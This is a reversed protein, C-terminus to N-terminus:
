LSLLNLESEFSMEGFYECQGNSQARHHDQYVPVPLIFITKGRQSATQM